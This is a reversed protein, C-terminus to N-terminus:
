DTPRANKPRMFALVLGAILAIEALAGAIWVPRDTGLQLTLFLLLGNLLLAAIGVWRGFRNRVALLLGAVAVLVASLGILMVEVTVADSLGAGRSLYTVTGAAQQWFLFLGLVLTVLGTTRQISM